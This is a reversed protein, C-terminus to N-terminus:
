KKKKKKTIKKSPKMTQNDEKKNPKEEYHKIDKIGKEVIQM